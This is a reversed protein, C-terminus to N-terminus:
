AFSSASWKAAIAGRDAAHFLRVRDGVAAKDAGGQEAVFGVRRGAGEDM